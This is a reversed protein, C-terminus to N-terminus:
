LEDEKEDKTNYLELYYYYYAICPESYMIHNTNFNRSNYHHEKELFKHLKIIKVQM